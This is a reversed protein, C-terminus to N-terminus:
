MVNYMVMLIYETKVCEAEKRTFKYILHLICLGIYVNKAPALSICEKCDPPPSSIFSCCSDPNKVANL